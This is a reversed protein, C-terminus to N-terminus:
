SADLKTLLTAKSWSPKQLWQWLITFSLSFILTWLLERPGSDSSYLEYNGITDVIFIVCQYFVQDRLSTPLAISSLISHSFTGCMDTFVNMMNTFILSPCGSWPRLNTGQKAMMRSAKVQLLHSCVHLGVALFYASASVKSCEATFQQTWWNRREEGQGRSQANLRLPLLCAFSDSPISSVLFIGDLDVHSSYQSVSVLTVPVPGEHSQVLNPGTDSLLLPCM